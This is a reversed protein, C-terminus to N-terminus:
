LNRTKHRARYAAVNMRTSCKDNCYRRSRNRSTDVYVDACNDASCVGLRERGFECVVTALGMAACAALRRGLPADSPVYHMHWHGDHDTIRPLAGTDDLLSNLLRASEAPEAEFVQRLRSRVEHVAAIDSETISDPVALGHETLFRRMEAPTGLWETGTVSGVSNVLDVAVAVSQDSYHTFDV